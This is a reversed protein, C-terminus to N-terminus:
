ILKDKNQGNYLFKRVEMVLDDPNDDIVVYYVVYNDEYIRYYPYKRERVFHYPEFSEAVPFREM